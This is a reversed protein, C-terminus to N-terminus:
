GDTLAGTEVEGNKGPQWIESAILVGLAFVFQLPMRVWLLWRERAMGDLYVDNVLMHINAPYVAVLLAILGWGAFRRTRSWLLGAGGLIEFLGSLYVLALPAPLYPPVIGVFLQPQRFHEVGVAVFSFAILTRIMLQKRMREDWGIKMRKTLSATYGM